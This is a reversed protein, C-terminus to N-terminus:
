AQWQIMQSIVDGTGSIILTHERDMAHLLAELIKLVEDTRGDKPREIGGKYASRKKSMNARLNILCILHKQLAGRFGSLLNVDSM